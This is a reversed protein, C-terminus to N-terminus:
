YVSQAADSIFECMFSRMRAFYYREMIKAVTRDLAFHGAMDHNQVVISKRMANPVVWLQREEGQIRVRKYVIGQRMVYDMIERQENLSREETPKTMIQDNFM